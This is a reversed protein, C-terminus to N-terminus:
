DLSCCRGVATRAQESCKPLLSVGHFTWSGVDLGAVSELTDGSWAPWILRLQAARSVVSQADNCANPKGNATLPDIEAAGVRHRILADLESACKSAQLKKM